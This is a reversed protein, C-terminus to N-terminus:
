NVPCPGPTKPHISRNYTYETILATAGINSLKCNRSNPDVEECYAALSNVSDDIMCYTSCMLLSWEGSKYAKEEQALLTAASNRTIHLLESIIYSQCDSGTNQQCTLEPYLRSERRCINFRAYEKQVNSDYHPREDEPKEEAISLSATLLITCALLILLDRINRRNWNSTFSM